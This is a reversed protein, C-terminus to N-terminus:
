RPNYHTRHIWLSSTTPAGLKFNQRSPRSLSVLAVTAAVPSSTRKLTLWSQSRTTTPLLTWAVNVSTLISTFSSLFARLALHDSMLPWDVFGLPVCASILDDLSLHTEGKQLDAPFSHTEPRQVRHPVYQADHHYSHPQVRVRNRTPVSVSVHSIIDLDLILNARINRM